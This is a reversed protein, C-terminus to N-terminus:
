LRLKKRVSHLCSYVKPDKKELAEDIQKISSMVTAHNRGGFYEGIRAYSLKLEKRCIHMAIQRPTVRERAQSKGLLDDMELGYNEAVAKAIRFPTLKVKEKAELLDQLIEKTRVLSPMPSDSRSVGQNLHLRLAFAELAKIMQGSQGEFTSIFFETLERTLYLDMRICREKLIRRQYQQSVPTLPVIIGWEFRSVLRPEIHQLEGPPCTAALLIPIGLTHLANFTHFLEEQTANKRSFHEIDDVLLAEVHRYVKRFHQMEGGRIAHVVHETFTQARVYAAKRGLELFRNATAMLLHSKGVGEPGYLFIPNFPIERTPSDTLETLLKHALLNGKGPVFDKLDAAPSPTDFRVFSPPLPRKAGQIGEELAPPSHPSILHVEIPKHNNNRLMKRVLPRVHEEFWSQQFSNKVELHLNCADYRVIKLPALWEDVARDGLRQRAFQVFEEWAQM